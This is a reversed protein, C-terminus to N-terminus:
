VSKWFFARLMNWEVAFVVFPWKEGRRAVDAVTPCRAHNKTSDRETLRRLRGPNMNRRVQQGCPLLPSHRRSHIAATRLKPLFLFKRNRACSTSHSRSISDPKPHFLFHWIRRLPLRTFFTLKEYIDMQSEERAHSRPELFAYLKALNHLSPHDVAGYIGEEGRKQTPRMLWNVFSLTSHWPVETEMGCLRNSIWM